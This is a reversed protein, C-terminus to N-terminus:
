RLNKRVECAQRPTTPPEIHADICQNFCDVCLAYVGFSAPDSLVKRECLKCAKWWHGDEETLSSGFNSIRRGDHQEHCTPNLCIITDLNGLGCLLCEPFWGEYGQHSM